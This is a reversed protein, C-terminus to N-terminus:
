RTEGHLNVKGTIGSGGALLIAIVNHSPTVSLGGEFTPAWPTSIYGEWLVVNPSIDPDVIQLLVPAAPAASFSASVGYVIHQKNAVAGKSAITIANTATARAVWGGIDTAM